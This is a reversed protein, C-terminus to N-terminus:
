KVHNTNGPHLCFRYASYFLLFYFHVQAAETKRRKAVLESLKSLGHKMPGDGRMAELEQIMDNPSKGSCSARTIYEPIERLREWQKHIKLTRSTRWTDGFRQEVDRLPPKKGSRVNDKYTYEGETWLEWLEDVSAYQGVTKPGWVDWLGDPNRIHSFVANWTVGQQGLFPPLLNRHAAPDYFARASPLVLDVQTHVRPGSDSQPSQTVVFARLDDDPGYVGLDDEGDTDPMNPPTTPNGGHRDPRLTAPRSPTAPGNVLQSPEYYTSTSFGKTPSLAATRRLVTNMLLKMQQNLDGLRLSVEKYSTNLLHNEIRLQAFPDGESAELLTLSDRFTTKMWYKVDRDKFAPLRFLASNPHKQYIAAGCQFLYPRLQIIMQWFHAAGGLNLKGKLKSHIEEAMPCVLQLFHNPVPIRTHVPENDEDVDFGAAAIIANKPLAPAYVDFYVQGRSWGLKSTENPDVHVCSFQEQKYGLLHRPLHAKIRSEFNAVKFASTYVNNLSPESFPITPSKRSHLLWIQRWSSNQTFDIQMKEIIHYVDFLFHLYFAFAGVACQSGDKHPAFVSYSPNITTKMGRKGCKEAGQLGLVVFFRTKRKPHTMEYPQIESLRLARIDDGRNGTANQGTWALHGKLASALERHALFGRGIEQLQELTIDHLFTNAIIDPADEVEDLGGRVRQLAQSMRSKVLDWVTVTLAPRSQALKPDRAEQTKRVRLAGFFQKKIQSAGVRTGPIIHGKQNKKPRHFTYNIYHLLLNEDIIRDRILDKKLAYEIFEDLCRVMAKQTSRGGKRRQKEFIENARARVRARFGEF